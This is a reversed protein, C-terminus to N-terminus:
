IGAALFALLGAELWWPVPTGSPHGVGLGAFGRPTGDPFFMVSPRVAWLATSSGVAMAVARELPTRLGLGAFGRQVFNLDSGRAFPNSVLGPPIGASAPMEPVQLNAAASGIVDDM